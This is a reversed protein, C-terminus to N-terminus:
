KSVNACSMEEPADAGWTPVTAYTGGGKYTYSAYVATMYCKGDTGKYSVWFEHYQYVPLDYENKKVYPERTLTVAKVTSAVPSDGRGKLYEAFEVGKVYKKAGEEMTPNSTVAKPLFVKAIKEAHVKDLYKQYEGSSIYLENEAKIKTIAAKGETMAAKAGADLSLSHDAEIRGLAALYDECRKIVDKPLAIKNTASYAVVDKQVNDKAAWAAYKNGNALCTTMNTFGKQTNEDTYGVLQATLKDYEAKNTVYDNYTKDQGTYAARCYCDKRSGYSDARYSLVDPNKYEVQGKFEKEFLDELKKVQAYVANEKDAREKLPNYKEYYKSADANPELKKIHGLTRENEFMLKTLMEYDVSSKGFEGELTALNAVATKRHHQASPDDTVKSFLGSPDKGPIVSKDDSSGSGKGITPKSVEIEPKKIKIQANLGSGLLAAGFLLALTKTSIKM